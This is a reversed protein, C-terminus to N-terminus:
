VAVGAKRKRGHWGAYGKYEYGQCTGPCKVVNNGFGLDYEDEECDIFYPKESIPKHYEDCCPGHREVAAAGEFPPEMMGVVGWVGHTCTICNRREPNNRCSAEHSRANGPNLFCRGCWGCKYAQVSIM